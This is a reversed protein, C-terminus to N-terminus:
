TFKGSKEVNKALEKIMSKTGNENIVTRNEAVKAIRSTKDEVKTGSVDDNKDELTEELNKEIRSVLFSFCYKRLKKYLNVLKPKLPQNVQEM